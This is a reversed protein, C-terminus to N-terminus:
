STTQFCARHAIIREITEANVLVPLISYVQHGRQYFNTVNGSLGTFTKVYKNMEAIADKTIVLELTICNKINDDIGEYTDDQYRDSFEIVRDYLSGIPFNGSKDNKSDISILHSQPNEKV